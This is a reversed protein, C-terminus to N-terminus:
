WVNCGSVYIIRLAYFFRYMSELVGYNILVNSLMGNIGPMYLICM